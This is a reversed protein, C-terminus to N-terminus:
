RGVPPLHTVSTVVWTTGRQEISLIETFEAFVPGIGYKKRQTGDESLSSCYKGADEPLTAAACDGADTFGQTRLYADVAAEPTAGTGFTPARTTTPAATTTPAVATTSASKPRSRTNGTSGGDCGAATVVLAVLGIAVITIRSRRVRPVVFRPPSHPPMARINLAVTVGAM